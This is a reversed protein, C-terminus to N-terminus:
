LDTWSETRAIAHRLRLGSLLAASIFLDMFRQIMKGGGHHLSPSFYNFYAIWSARVRPATTGACTVAAGSVLNLTERGRQLRANHYTNNIRSPRGPAEVSSHRPM